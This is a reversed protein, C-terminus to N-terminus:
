RRFLFDEHVTSITILNLGNIRDIVNLFAEASIQFKCEPYSTLVLNLGVTRKNGLAIVMM